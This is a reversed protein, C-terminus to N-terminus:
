KVMFTMREINDSPVMHAVQPEITTQMAQPYHPSVGSDHWLPIPQYEILEALRGNSTVTLILCPGM